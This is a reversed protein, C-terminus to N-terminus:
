LIALGLVALVIWYSAPTRRRFNASQRMLHELRRATVELMGVGPMALWVRGNAQAELVDVLARAYDRPRCDLGMVVEEDCAWERQRRTERNAWWILPHFWWMVQAVLQVLAARPDG